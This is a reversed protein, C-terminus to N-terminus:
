ETKPGVESRSTNWSNGSPSEGRSTNPRRAIELSRLWREAARPNRFELYSLGDRPQEDFIRRYERRLRRFSQLIWLLISDRSLFSQRFTERNGSYLERGTAARHITRRMARSFTALFSYNLWILVTARPWLVDRVAVYNGEAVWADGAAAARTLDRFEEPNRPRWHPAWHLADLEVRPVSLLRALRRAFTTKGACSSGVVVVRALNLNLEM